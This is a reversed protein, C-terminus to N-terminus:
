SSAHPVIGKAEYGAVAGLLIADMFNAIRTHLINAEALDNPQTLGPIPATVQSFVRRFFLFAEVLDHMSIGADRAEVGYTAGVARAEEMFRSHDEHSNVHQILLGLLRQGLGRMHEAAPPMTALRHHWSQRAMERSDVIWGGPPTLPALSAADHVPDLLALLAARSFRRHGGLTRQTAIKGADAWRRLTSPAVRMIMSADHLTLWEADSEPSDGLDRSDEMEHEERRIM